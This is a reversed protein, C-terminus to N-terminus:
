INPFYAAQIL